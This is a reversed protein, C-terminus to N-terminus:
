PAPLPPPFPFPFPFGHDHSPPHREAEDPSIIRAGSPLGKSLAAAPEDFVVILTKHDIRHLVRGGAQEIEELAAELDLDDDLTVVHENSHDIQQPM